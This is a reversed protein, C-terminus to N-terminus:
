IAIDRSHSSLNVQFSFSTLQCYAACVTHGQIQLTLNQFLHLKPIPHFFPIFPTSLINSGNHSRSSQGYGQVQNELDFKSIPMDWSHCPFHFSLPSNIPHQVWQTVEFKSRVWSKSRELKIKGLDFKYNSTDWSYTFISCLATLRYSTPDVKHGQVKVRLKVKFKKYWIEFFSYRLFPLPSQCPIFPM